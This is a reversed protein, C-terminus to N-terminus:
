ELTSGERSATSASAHIRLLRGRATKEPSTSCSTEATSAIDITDHRRIPTFSVCAGLRHRLSSLGNPGPRGCAQMHGMYTATSHVALDFPVASLTPKCSGISPECSSQRITRHEIDIPRAGADMDEQKPYVVESASIEANCPLCPLTTLRVEQRFFRYSLGSAGSVPTAPCRSRRLLTWGSIPKGVVPQLAFLRKPRPHPVCSNLRYRGCRGQGLEPKRAKLRM